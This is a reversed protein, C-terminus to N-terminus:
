MLSYHVGKTVGEKKVVGKKILDRVDRLITDVSINPLVRQADDSTMQGQNQLLELLIIQRESLAVQKGLEKKLKLDKSLKQVQHKVKDIEVALGYCFYEMWFTMDSDAKQQVSLLAKYYQDVDNDFYQEISFFRKFDYGLLYLVLTAFARATRGNGEVYPHVYVLQYHVIAAKFIPHIHVNVPDNLWSFLESILFPVEVSVPPRFVVEGAGVGQVIVQKQRFGGIHSDEELLGKMTLSHLTHLTELTFEPKRGMIKQQDIWMLVNRYNIVEQIDRERAIVGTKESIEKTDFDGKLHIVQSAQEASLDNGEIKTGFHVTRTLAEDRFKAEWSPVLPASDILAKSAEISAIYTLLNHTIQFSPQYMKITNYFLKQM